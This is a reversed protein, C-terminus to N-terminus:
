TIFFINHVKLCFLNMRFGKKANKIWFGKVLYFLSNELCFDIIKFIFNKYIQPLCTYRIDHFFVSLKSQVNNWRPYHMCTVVPFLTTRVNPFLLFNMVLIKRRWVHCTNYVDSAHPWLFFSSILLLFLCLTVTCGLWLLYLFNQRSEACTSTANKFQINREVCM